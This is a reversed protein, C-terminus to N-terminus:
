SKEKLLEPNEKINGIIETEYNEIINFLYDWKCEGEIESRTEPQHIAIFSGYKFDVLYINGNEGCKIWDKSYIEKRHKDLFGAFQMVEYENPRCVKEAFSDFKYIDLCMMNNIKDWARVKIERM